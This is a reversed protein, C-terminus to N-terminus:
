RVTKMSAEVALVELSGDRAERAIGESTVLLRV